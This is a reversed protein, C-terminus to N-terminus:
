VSLLKLGKQISLYTPGEQVSLLTPGKYQSYRLVSGNTNITSISQQGPLSRSHYMKEQDLLGKTRVPYDTKGHLYNVKTRHYLLIYACITHSLLLSPSM